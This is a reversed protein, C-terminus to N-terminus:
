ELVLANYDKMFTHGANDRLRGDCDDKTIPRVTADVGRESYPALVEEKYAPSFHEDEVGQEVVIRSLSTAADFHEANAVDRIAVEDDLRAGSGCERGLSPHPWRKRLNISFKPNQSTLTLGGADAESVHGFPDDLLKTLWERKSSGYAAGGLDLYASFSQPLLKLLNFAVQAGASRSVVSVRTPNLKAEGIAWRLANIADVAQILGWDWFEIPYPMSAIVAARQNEYFSFEEAPVALTEGRQFAAEINPNTRLGHYAHFGQENVFNVDRQTLETGFYNVGVVLLNHKESLSRRLMKWSIDNQRGGQGHLLLCVGTDANVGRHPGKVFTRVVRGGHNLWRDLTPVEAVVEKAFPIEESM